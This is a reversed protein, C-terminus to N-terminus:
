ILYLNYFMQDLGLIKQTKKLWRRNILLAYSQYNISKANRIESGDGLQHCRLNTQLNHKWYGLVDQWRWTLWVSIEQDFILHTSIWKPGKSQFFVVNAFCHKNHNLHIGRTYFFVWSLWESCNSTVHEDESYGNPPIVSAFVYIRCFIDAKGM